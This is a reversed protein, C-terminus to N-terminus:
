LFDFDKFHKYHIVNSKFQAVAHGNSKQSIMSDNQQFSQWLLQPCRQMM